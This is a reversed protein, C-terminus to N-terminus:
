EEKVEELGEMYWLRPGKKTMIIGIKGDYSVGICDYVKGIVRFGYGEPCEVCKFKKVIM